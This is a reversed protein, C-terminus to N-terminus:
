DIGYLYLLSLIGAYYLLTLICLALGIKSRLTSETTGFKAIAAISVIVGLVTIAMNYSFLWLLNEANSGAFIFNNLMSLIGLLLSLNQM